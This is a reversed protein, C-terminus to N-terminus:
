KTIEVYQNEEYTMEITGRTGTRRNALVRMKASRDNNAKEDDEDFHPRSIMLVVDAEQAVFSSDRMHELSPKEDSRIKTTHALIFIVVNNRIAMKKLERMVQGILGSMNQAGMPVLFHLHDIFVIKTDYKAKAEVIRKEIWDLTTEKLMAPLYFLPVQGNPFRTLFERTPVEYSFWLCGIGQFSYKQTLTQCYSTKGCKTWGSMVVLQGESFGGTIADLRHFGSVILPPQKESAYKNRLEFSTVVKDKGDYSLLELEVM